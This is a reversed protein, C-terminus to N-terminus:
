ATRLAQIDLKRMGLMARTVRGARERDPDRMLEMLASPVIQWSVGWRDKLWGCLQPEGGEGLRDWLRDIEDQTECEVFLSFAEIFRFQPGGNLALMRQGDLEFTVTMVGGEPGPGEAGYRALEVVRSNPFLSTYRAVTDEAQGDFWLFPVIRLM